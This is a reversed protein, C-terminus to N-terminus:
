RGRKRQRRLKETFSAEMVHLDGHKNGLTCLQVTLLSKAINGLFLLDGEQLIVKLLQGFDVLLYLFHGWQVQLLM